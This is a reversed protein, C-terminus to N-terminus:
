KKMLVDFLTSSLFIDKKVVMDAEILGSNTLKYLLQTNHVNLKSFGRVLSSIERQNFFEVQFNDLGILHDTLKEMLRPHSVEAKAFAQVISAFDQPAFDNM